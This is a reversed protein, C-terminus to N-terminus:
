SEFNCAVFYNKTGGFFTQSDSIPWSPVRDVYNNNIKKKLKYNVDQQM